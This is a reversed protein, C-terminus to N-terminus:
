IQMLYQRHIFSVFGQGGACTGLGTMGLKRVGVRHAELVASYEASYAM